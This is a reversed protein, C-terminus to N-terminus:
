EVYDQKSARTFKQLMKLRAENRAALVEKVEDDYWDNRSVKRREGITEKAAEQVKEKIQKWKGEVTNEYRTDELGVRIKLTYLLSTQKEM